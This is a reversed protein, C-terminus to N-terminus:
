PFSARGSRQERKAQAIADKLNTYRHDRYHFYDVPVKIIGYKSMEEIDELSASPSLEKIDPSAMGREGIPGTSVPNDSNNVKCGLM